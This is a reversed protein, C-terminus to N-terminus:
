ASPKHAATINSAPRRKEKRQFFFYGFFSAMMQQFLMGIICPVAVAPPFFTTALVAGASINRMGSNYMMSVAAGRDMKFLRSVGIGIVYGSAVLVICVAAIGIVRVDWEKFYPAIVASNIMVVVALGLKSFPALVPGWSAKVKGKSAQNVAMGILSPVVVMWLLGQLMGWTDMQVKTGILLSLTYPVIFPSLLTDVLIMSLTLVTNGKYISVWVFSVIGTPIALLLIMGTVTLPDNPFILSGAGWAMLPMVAHIIILFLMIPLPHSIVRHLDKFNMGLSGSFTMFAFIWPVAFIYPHLWDSLLLGITVSTPTLLPMSKELIKNLRNLYQLM